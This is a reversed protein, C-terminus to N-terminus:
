FRLALGLGLYGGDGISDGPYGWHFWAASGLIEVHEFIRLGAQLRVQGAAAV